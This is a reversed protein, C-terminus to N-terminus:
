YLIHIYLVSVKGDDDELLTQGNNTDKVVAGIPIRSDSTIEM